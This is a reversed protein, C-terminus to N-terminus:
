TCGRGTSFCRRSCTASRTGKMPSAPWAPDWPFVGNGPAARGTLEGAILGLNCVSRALAIPTGAGQVILVRDREGRHDRDHDGADAVTANEDRYPIM